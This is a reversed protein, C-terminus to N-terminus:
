SVFKLPMRTNASGRLEIMETIIRGTVFLLGLQANKEELRKPM